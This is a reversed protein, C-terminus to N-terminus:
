TSPLVAAALTQVFTPDVPGYSRSFVFALRVVRGSVSDLEAHDTSQHASVGPLPTTQPQFCEDVHRAADFTRAATPDTFRLAVLTVAVQDNRWSRQLGVVVNATPLPYTGPPDDLQSVNAPALRASGVLPLSTGVTAPLGPAASSAEEASSPPLPAPPTGCFHQRAALAPAVLTTALLGGLSLVLAAIRVAILGRARRASPAPPTPAGFPAAPPAAPAKLRAAGLLLGAGVVALIAGIIAPAAVRSGGHMTPMVNSLDAPDYHVTTLSDLPFYRISAVPTLAEGFGGASTAFAVRVEDASRRGSIQGIVLAQALPGHRSAQERHAQLQAGLLFVAGFALMGFGVLLMRARPSLQRRPNLVLPASGWSAPDASM